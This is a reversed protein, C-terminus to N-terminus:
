FGGGFGGGFAGFGSPPATQRAQNNGITSFNSFGKNFISNFSNERGMSPAVIPLGASLDMDLDPM